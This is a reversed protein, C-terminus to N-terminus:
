RRQSVEPDKHCPSFAVKRGRLWIGQMPSKSPGIHAPHQFNVM